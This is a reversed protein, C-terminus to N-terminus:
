SPYVEANNTGELVVMFTTGDDATLEYVSSSIRKSTVTYEDCEYNLTFANSDPMLDVVEEFSLDVYEFNNTDVGLLYQGEEFTISTLELVSSNNTTM